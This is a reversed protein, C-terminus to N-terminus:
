LSKISEALTKTIEKQLKIIDDLNNNRINKYVARASIGTNISIKEVPEDTMLGNLIKVTNIKWKDSIGSLLMLYQNILSLNKIHPSYYQIITRSYKKLKEIGDRALYFAPGDMGIAQRPNIKTTLKDIGISFRARHPYITEIIKWIDIFISDPKKYVAQFEDGLTITYPSHLLRKSDKNIEKFLTDLSNQFNEREQIKKSMAIDGILGILALVEKTM